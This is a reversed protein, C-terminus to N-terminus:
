EILDIIKKANPKVGSRFRDILKGNEDLIFKEFNWKIRGTFSPNEQECLWKFIPHIDEGDVSVKSALTFTVGYNKKCFDVIEDDTGPEQGGYNNAPFGIVALKDGHKEHMEQLEMYQPTYGCESATNVIMIKKGAFSSFSIEEGDISTFSFEHISQQATSTLSMFASILLLM